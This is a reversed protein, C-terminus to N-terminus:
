IFPEYAELDRIACIERYMSSWIGTLIIISSPIVSIAHNIKGYSELIIPVCLCVAMVTASLFSIFNIVRSLYRRTDKGAHINELSDGSKLYQETIDKPNIFLRAFSITLLYIFFIYVTLGVPDSLDLHSKWWLLSTNEPIIHLLLDVLLQPITFFAAAFMAPMVGIPHLKIAMYNKDSFINHISIRQVPIRMESNEMFLM